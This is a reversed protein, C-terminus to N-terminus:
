CTAEAHHQGLVGGNAHLQEMTTHISGGADTPAAMGSHHDPADADVVSLLSRLGVAVLVFVRAARTTIM